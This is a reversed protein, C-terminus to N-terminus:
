KQSDLETRVTTLGQYRESQYPELGKRVLKWIWDGPFTFCVVRCVILGPTVIWLCISLVNVFKFVTLFQFM